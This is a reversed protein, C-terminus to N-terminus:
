PRLKMFFMLLRKLVIKKISFCNLIESLYRFKFLKKVIVFNKLTYPSPYNGFRVDLQCVM